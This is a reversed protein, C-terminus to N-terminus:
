ATNHVCLARSYATLVVPNHNHTIVSGLCIAFCNCTNCELGRGTMVATRTATKREGKMPLGTPIVIQSKCPEGLGEMWVRGELVRFVHLLTSVFGSEDDFWFISALFDLGSEVKSKRQVRGCARM